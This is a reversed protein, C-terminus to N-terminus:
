SAGHELVQVLRKMKHAHEHIEKEMLRAITKRGAREADDRKVFVCDNPVSVDKRYMPVDVLVHGEKQQTTVVKGQVVLYAIEHTFVPFLFREGALFVTDGAAVEGPKIASM